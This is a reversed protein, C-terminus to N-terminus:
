TLEVKGLAREVLLALIMVFALRGSAVMDISQPIRFESQPNFLLFTETEEIRM